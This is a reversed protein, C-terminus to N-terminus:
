VIKKYRKQNTKHFLVKFEPVIQTIDQKRFRDMRVTYNIFDTFYEKEQSTNKLRALYGSLIKLHDKSWYVHDKNYELFISAMDKLTKEIEDIAQAKLSDPLVSARLFKPEHLWIFHPMRYINRWKAKGLWKLLDPLNFLNLIQFTSHIYIKIHPYKESLDDLFNLAKEMTSWKSPFRIYNNVRGFGDISCNFEVERFEKWLALLRLSLKTLNSNYKIKINKAVKLEIAKKLINEHEKIM